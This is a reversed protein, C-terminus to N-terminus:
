KYCNIVATLPKYRRCSLRRGMCGGEALRSGAFTYPMHPSAAKWGGAYLLNRYRNNMLVAAPFGGGWVAGGEVRRSGAFTYPMHPSAAKWGGAYLLNLYRNNM